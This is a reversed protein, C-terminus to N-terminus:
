SKSLVYKKTSVNELHNLKSTLDSQSPCMKCMAHPNGFNNLFQSLEADSCDSALGKYLFPEWQDYNPNGVRRLIDELLGNTSCKYIKDKYLLPCTQQCCLSFADAPKSNHPMMNEYTGKYTKWFVDPRKVHYRFQNGTTYRKVGFEEVEQWDYMNYIKQINKELNDDQVHVAIKFVCNGIEELLKVVHFKKDLLLGNTTFRIQTNPMLERLGVIWKEIQPNMLPEGGLIGFDPIDVRALWRELSAKGAKWSTYGQWTVDSYNSCGHCALNCNQNVMTEVFPLVPKIM